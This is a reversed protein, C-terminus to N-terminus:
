LTAKFFVAKIYKAPNNPNKIEVEYKQLRGAITYELLKEKDEKPLLDYKEKTVLVYVQYNNLENYDNVLYSFVNMPHDIGWMGRIRLYTVGLPDIKNVRGLEKSDAFEVGSITQIGAAITSKIRLYIDESACYCDGYLLWLVRLKNDIINGVAYIMDKENWGGLDDECKRCAKNILTSNSHLKDKPHSSNLAIYGFKAKELKKVEVAADGKIIFDPPNNSNGIYSLYNSYIRDKENFDNVEITNCFIDKIYYELADGMNNARNHVKSEYVKLLENNSNDLINKLALLINTTM